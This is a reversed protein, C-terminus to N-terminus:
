KLKPRVCSIGNYESPFVYDKRLPHGEWDMPLMIRRLDPHGTFDIGFLDYAEREFWNAGNWIGSVTPVVAKEKPLHVHLCLRHRHRFSYLNYVVCFVNKEDDSKASVEGDVGGLCMLSDFILEPDERLFHCIRSIGEPSILIFPEGGFKIKEDGASNQAPDYFNLVIKEKFETLLKQYIEQPTKTSTSNM